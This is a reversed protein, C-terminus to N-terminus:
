CREIIAAMVEKPVDQMNFIPISDGKLNIRDFFEDFTEGTDVLEFGFMNVGDPSLPNESMTYVYNKDILVLYRDITKGGNDWIHVKM